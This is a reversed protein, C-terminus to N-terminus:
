SVVPISYSHSREAGSARAPNANTGSAVGDSEDSTVASNSALELSEADSTAWILREILQAAYHEDRLHAAIVRESFTERSSADSHNARITITPMQMEKRPDLTTNLSARVTWEAVPPRDDTVRHATRALPSTLGPRGMADTPAILGATLISPRVGTHIQGRPM